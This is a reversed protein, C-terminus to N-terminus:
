AGGQPIADYLIDVVEAESRGLFRAVEATSRQVGDAGSIWRAVLGPLGVPWDQRAPREPRAPTQGDVAQLVPPPASTLGRSVSILTRWIVVSAFPEFPGREGEYKEAARMLADIAADLYRDADVSDLRVFKGALRRTMTVHTTAIEFM